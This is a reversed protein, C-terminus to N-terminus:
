NNYMIQKETELYDSFIKLATEKDEAIAASLGDLGDFKKEDRIFALIFVEICKSYLNGDFGIIHTESFCKEGDVTPRVGYNTMAPYLKGDVRCCSAYVGRKMKIFGDPFVQNATPFGLTRGRKDGDIVPFCYSFPRGLMERAEEMNGSEVARRIRTSSIPEGKYLVTAVVNLKVGNENCLKGLLEINGKGGKGFSYNEGCSLERVEMEDLLIEYFFEEATMDMIESFDIHIAPIGNEERIRFLVSDCLLEPPAEGRIVKLPHEDFLLAYMPYESKKAANIVAMHGLHFGDFTGLALSIGNRNDTLM